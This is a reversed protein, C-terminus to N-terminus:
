IFILWPYTGITTIVIRGGYCIVPSTVFAVLSAGSTSCVLRIKGSCMLEVMTKQLTRAAWDKTEQTTSQLDNNLRKDKKMQGNNGKQYRCVKKKRSIVIFMVITFVRLLHFM